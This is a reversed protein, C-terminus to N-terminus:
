VMSRTINSISVESVPEDEVYRRRQHDNTNTTTTGSTTQTTTDDEEILGAMTFRISIYNFYNFDIYGEDEVSKVRLNPSTSLVKALNMIHKYDKFQVTVKAVDGIGNPTPFKIGEFKDATAIVHSNIRKENLKTKNYSHFEVQNENILISIFETDRPFSSFASCFVLASGKVQAHNQYTPERDMSEEQEDLQITRSISTNQNIVINFILKTQQLVMEVSEAKDFMTCASLVRKSNVFIINDESPGNFEKFSVPKFLYELFATSKLTTAKMEFTNTRWIWRLDPSIKSITKVLQVFADQIEKCLLCRITHTEEEM